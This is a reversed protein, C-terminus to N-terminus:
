LIYNCTGHEKTMIMCGLRQQQTIGIPVAGLITTVLKPPTKDGKEEHPDNWPGHEKGQLKIIKEQLLCRTSLEKLNISFVEEM